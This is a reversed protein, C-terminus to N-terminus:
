VTLFSSLHSSKDETQNLGETSPLINAHCHRTIPTIYHITHSTYQTDIDYYILM